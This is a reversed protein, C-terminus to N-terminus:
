EGKIFSEFEEILEEKTKTEKVVERPIDFLDDLYNFLNTDIRSKILGKVISYAGQQVAKVRLERKIREIPYDCVAM